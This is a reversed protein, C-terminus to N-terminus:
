GVKEILSMVKRRKELHKQRFNNEYINNWLNIVIVKSVKSNRKFKEFLLSMLRKDYNIFIYNSFINLGIYTFITLLQHMNQILSLKRWCTIVILSIYIINKGFLIHFEQMTWNESM